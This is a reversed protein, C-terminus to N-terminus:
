VHARGIQARTLLFTATINVQLVEQWSEPSTQSLARREGLVGANHVLGDIALGEGLLTEALEAYPQNQTTRLDLPILGPTRGGANVIDDYVRELAAENRGSLLVEAGFSACALAVAKGIGDSAGTILITKQKLEDRTPRWGPPIVSM